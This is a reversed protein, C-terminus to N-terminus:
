AAAKQQLSTPGFTVLYCVRSPLVSTARTPLVVKVTADQGTALRSHSKLRAFSGRCSPQRRVQCVTGIAM